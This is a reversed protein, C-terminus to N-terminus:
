TRFILQFDIRQQDLISRRRLKRNGLLLKELCDVVLISASFDEFLNHRVPDLCVAAFHDAFGDDERIVMMVGFHDDLAKGFHVGLIWRIIALQDIVIDFISVIENQFESLVLTKANSNRNIHKIGADVNRFNDIQHKELRYFRFDLKNLHNSTSRAKTFIKETGALILRMENDEIIATVEIVEILMRFFGVTNGRTRQCLPIKLDPQVDQIFQLLDLILFRLEAFGIILLQFVREILINRFEFFAASPDLDSRLHFVHVFVAIVISPETQRRQRDFLDLQM